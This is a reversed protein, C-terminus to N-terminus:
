RKAYIFLFYVSELDRHQWLNSVLSKIGTTQYRRRVTYRLSPSPASVAIQRPPYSTPGLLTRKPIRTQVYFGNIVIDQVAVFINELNGAEAQCKAVKTLALARADPPVINLAVAM